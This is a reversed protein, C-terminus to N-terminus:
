HRVTNSLSDVPPGGGGRGVAQNSHQQTQEQIKRIASNSKKIWTNIVKRQLDAFVFGMRNEETADHDHIGGTRGQKSAVGQKKQKPQQKLLDVASNQYNFNQIQATIDQYNQKLSIEMVHVMDKDRLSSVNQNKLM